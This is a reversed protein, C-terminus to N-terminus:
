QNIFKLEKQGEVVKLNIVQTDINPIVEVSERNDIFLPVCVGYHKSLTKIIDIGAQIQLARNMASGYPKGDVMVECTPDIGGNVQIDFMKFKVMEFMGNARNQVMTIKDNTFQQAIFQKKELGSILAGLEKNRSNLEEIRAQANAITTRNALQKELESIESILVAREKSLDDNNTSEPEGINAKAEEAEKLLKQYEENSALSKELEAQIDPKPANVLAEEAKLLSEKLESVRANEKLIMADVDSLKEEAEKVAALLQDLEAKYSVGEANNKEARALKSRNFNSILTAKIEESKNADFPRKCTPCSFQSDDFVITDNQIEAREARLKNLINEVQEIRSKQRAISQEINSKERVLISVNSTADSLERKLKDINSLDPKSLEEISSRIKSRMVDLDNQLRAWKMNRQRYAEVSQEVAKNADAILGDILAVRAKKDGITKEILNFDLSLALVSDIEVKREKVRPEIEKQEKKYGDLETKIKANYDKIDKYGAMEKLLQEYANNGSAVTEDSVDGVIGMIISRQKDWPLLPFFTPSSLMKFADISIIEAFRNNFETQTVPAGNWTYKSENGKFVEESQGKPKSWIECLTRSLIHETGDVSITAEVTNEEKRAFNGKDDVQTKIGDTSEGKTNIGTILWRWADEIRTKGVGNGGTVTTHKGFTYEASVCGMFNSLRLKVLSLNKM